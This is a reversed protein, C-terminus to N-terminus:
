ICNSFTGIDALEFVKALEVLWFGTEALKM